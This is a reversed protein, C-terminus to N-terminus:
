SYYHLGKALLVWISIFSIIWGIYRRTIEWDLPQIADVDQVRFSMGWRFLEDAFLISAIVVVSLFFCPWWIIWTGKHTLEPGEVLRLITGPSPEMTDIINGDEDTVINSGATTFTIDSVSSGDENYFFRMDGANFYGGRFFIDEGERIEVGHTCNKGEPIATTDPKVTYPGYIKDGYTFTLVKDATVSFCATQGNLEGSYIENRNETRHVLIVGDYAYGVKSTTIVYLVTYVAFLVILALIILKQFGDLSKYREM